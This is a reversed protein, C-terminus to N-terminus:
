GAIEVEALRLVEGAILYGPSSESVISGAPYATTPPTSAVAIMTEPDFPQGATIIKEIGANGILTHVRSAFMTMAENINDWAAPWKGAGFLPSPPPEALAGVLRRARDQLDVLSLLHSRPFASKQDQEQDRRRDARIETLRRDFHQLTDSLQSLAEATKRNGTRNENRLVALAEYFSYLDPPEPTDPADIDALAQASTEADTDLVDLADQFALTLADRLDDNM